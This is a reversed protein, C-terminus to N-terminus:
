TQHFEIMFGDPDRVVLERGMGTRVTADVGAAKLTRAVEDVNTPEALLLRFSRLGISEGPGVEALVIDVRGLAGALSAQRDPSTSENVVELGGVSTFFELMAEFQRTSFRVGTLHSPHM